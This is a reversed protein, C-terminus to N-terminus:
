ARARALFWAKAAHTVARGVAKWELGAAALADGSEARVDQGIWKLFAGLAKPSAGDPCAEALGQELRADTVFTEVLEEISRAVAPDVEVAAGAKRVRHREGKAKFMLSTIADRDTAREGGLTPYLVLGEGVGEFGFTERVWPDISEIAEVEANLKAVATEPDAFDIAIPAGHWPLVFVDPHTPALAALAEPEIVLTAAERAPDGLMAAFIVFVRRDLRTVAVGRQVGPGCWEGYLTLHRDRALAAFAPENALVWAAFGLNDEAPTIVRNRAQAIVGGDPTVQVGSNTGHLKVKARYTVVPPPEGLAEARALAEGRVNHLLEIKTWKLLQGDALSREPQCRGESLDTGPAADVPGMAMGRSSVGRLKVPRIATGDLLTTGALAVMAVDGVAYTHEQNAVVQVAARGPAELTYVRLSDANPHDAVATVKMALIPM